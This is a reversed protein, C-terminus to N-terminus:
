DLKYRPWEIPKGEGIAEYALMNREAAAADKANFKIKRQSYTDTELLRLTEVGSYFSAVKLVKPVKDVMLDDLAVQLAADYKDKLTSLNDSYIFIKEGRKGM